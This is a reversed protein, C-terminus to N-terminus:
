DENVKEKDNTKLYHETMRTQLANIGKDGYLEQLAIGLTWRVDNEATMHEVAQAFLADLDIDM